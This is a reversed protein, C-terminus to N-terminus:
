SGWKRMSRALQRHAVRRLRNRAFGSVGGRSISKFMAFLSLVRYFTRLMAGGGM